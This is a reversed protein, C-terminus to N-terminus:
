SSLALVWLAAENPPKNDNTVVFCGCTLSDSETFASSNGSKNSRLADSKSMVSWFTGSWSFFYFLWFTFYLCIISFLFNYNSILCGPRSSKLHAAPAGADSWLPRDGVVGRDFIQIMTVKTDIWITAYRSLMCVHLCCVASLPPMEDIKPWAM